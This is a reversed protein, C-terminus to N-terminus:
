KTITIKITENDYSRELYISDNEILLYDNRLLLVNLKQKDVFTKTQNLIDFNCYNENFDSFFDDITKALNNLIDIKSASKFSLNGNINISMEM